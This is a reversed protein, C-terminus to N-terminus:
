LVYPFASPLCSSTLYKLEAKDTPGADYIMQRMCPTLYLFGELFTNLGHNIPNGGANHAPGEQTPQIVIGGAPCVNTIAYYPPSSLLPVDGENTTHPASSVVTVVTLRTPSTTGQWVCVPSPMSPLHLFFPLMVRTRLLHFTVRRRHYM